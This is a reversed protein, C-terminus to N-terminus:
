LLLNSLTLLHFVSHSVGDTTSCEAYSHCPDAPSLGSSWFSSWLAPAGKRTLCSSLNLPGPLGWQPKGTGLPYWLFAPSSSKILAYLSLVLPLPKLNSSPLNWNCIIFFIKAILTTPCQIVSGLSTLYAQDRSTNLVQSSPAQVVQDLPRHGQGHCPTPALYDKLDGWICAM